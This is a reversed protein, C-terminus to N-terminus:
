HQQPTTPNPASKTPLNAAGPMIANKTTQDPAHAQTEPKAPVVANEAGTAPKAEARPATTAPVAVDMVSKSMARSGGQTALFVSTFMFLAACVGTFTSFFNAGGSSGFVTQSSGGFSASIEAGKGQQVLVALVILVCLIVHIVGIFSVVAHM